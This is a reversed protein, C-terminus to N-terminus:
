HSHVKGAEFENAPKGFEKNEMVAELWFVRVALHSVPNHGHLVGDSLLLKGLCTPFAWQLSNAQWILTGDTRFAM